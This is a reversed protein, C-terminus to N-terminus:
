IKLSADVTEFLFGVRPFLLWSPLPLITAIRPGRGQFASALRKQKTVTVDFGFFSHLLAPLTRLIGSYIRTNRPLKVGQVTQMLAVQTPEPQTSFAIPATLFLWPIQFRASSLNLGLQAVKALDRGRQIEPDERVKLISIILGSQDGWHYLGLPFFLLSFSM